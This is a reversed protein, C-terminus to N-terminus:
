IKSYELDGKKGINIQSFDGELDRAFLQWFNLNFNVSRVIRELLSEIVVNQIVLISHPHDKQNLLLLSYLDIKISRELTDPHCYEFWINDGEFFKRFLAEVEESLEKGVVLVRINM